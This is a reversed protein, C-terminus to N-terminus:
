GPWHCANHECSAENSINIKSFKNELRIQSSYNPELFIDDLLIIFKNVLKNM